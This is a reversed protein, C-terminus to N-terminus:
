DSRLEYNQGVFRNVLERAINRPDLPVDLGGYEAPIRVASMVSNQIHAVEAESFGNRLLARQTRHLHFGHDSQIVIIANPNRELILDIIRIMVMVGYEHALPYLDLLEAGSGHDDLSEDQWHWRNPHTFMTTLYVFKADSTSFTDLLRRYIQREHDFNKTDVTLEDIEVSFSPIAEWEFSGERIEFVLRRPLPTMLTLLEILDLSYQLFHPQRTPDFITFPYRDINENESAGSGLRYFRDIPVYVFPDVDAIMIAEYGAQMFAHFMEHYPAVDQIFSIGIEAIRDYLLTRRPRRLLGGAESFLAHLHNDYFDPSLLGPVGLTTDHAVFRADENIVFGRDVLQQRLELQPDDFLKEMTAFNIMGDMHLWYIDPSPLEPDVEFDRRIVVHDLEDVSRSTTMASIFTPFANFVFLLSVVGSIAIFVVNGKQLKAALIRFLVSLGLLVAGVIGLLFPRSNFPVRALLAEFFWFFLWFFIVILLSGEYTRTLFKGIWLGILSIVALIGGVILVHSFLIHTSDQNQTYINFLFINPLTMASLWYLAIGLKKNLQNNKIETSMKM